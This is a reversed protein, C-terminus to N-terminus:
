KQKLPVIWIYIQISILISGISVLDKLVISKILHNNLLNSILVPMFSLYMNTVSITSVKGCKKCEVGSFSFISKLKSYMHISKKGCYPCNLM